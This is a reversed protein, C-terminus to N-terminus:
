TGGDQKKWMRCEAGDEPRMRECNSGDPEATSGGFLLATMRAKGYKREAWIPNDGGGELLAADDVGAGCSILGNDRLWGRACTGCKRDDSM